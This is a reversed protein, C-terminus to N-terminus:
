LYGLDSAVDRLEFCGEFIKSELRQVAVVGGECPDGADVLHRQTCVMNPPPIVKSLADPPRTQKEVLANGTTFKSSNSDSNNNSNVTGAVVFDITAQKTPTDLTDNVAALM